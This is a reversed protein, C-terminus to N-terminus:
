FIEFWFSRDPCSFDPLGALCVALFSFAMSSFAPPVDARSLACRPGLLVLEHFRPRYANLAVPSFPSFFAKQSPWEASLFAANILLDSASFKLTPPFFVFFFISRDQGCRALRQFAPRVRSLSSFLSVAGSSPARPWFLLSFGTSFLWFPDLCGAALRLHRALSPRSVLSHFFSFSGLGRM